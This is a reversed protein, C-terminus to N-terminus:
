LLRPLFCIFLSKQFLRNGESLRQKSVLERKEKTEQKMFDNEDAYGSGDLNEEFTWPMM